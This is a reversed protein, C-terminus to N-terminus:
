AEMDRRREERTGNQGTAQAYARIVLSCGGSARVQSARLGTYRKMMNRLSNVSAFELENAISEITRSPYKALYGGALALRSWALLEAPAPGGAARAQNFLTKRHVALARAIDAVHRGDQPFRIAYRVFEHLSTPVWPLFKDLVHDATSSHAAALVISRIAAGYDDIDQFLFERAGALALDRIAPSWAVGARCSVVVAIDSESLRRVMSEAYAGERDTGELILVHLHRVHGVMAGLERLTAVGVVEADGRLAARIRSVLLPDRM